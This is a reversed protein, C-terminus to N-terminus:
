APRGGHHAQWRDFIAQGASHGFTMMPVDRRFTLQHAKVWLTKRPEISAIAYWRVHLLPPFLRFIALPRLYFGGTDIWVNMASRYSVGGPFRGIVLSAMAYRQADPPVSRECAFEPLYRSWGFWSLLRIIGLWLAVFFLPSGLALIWILHTDNM